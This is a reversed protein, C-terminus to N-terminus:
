SMTPWAPAGQEEGVIEAAYSGVVLRAKRSTSTPRTLAGQEETGINGAYTGVVAIAKGCTDVCAVSSTRPTM